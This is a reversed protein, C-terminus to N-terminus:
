TSRRFSLSFDVHLVWCYKTSKSLRIWTSIDVDFRHWLKWTSEDKLISTIEVFKGGPIEVDFRHRISSSTDMPFNRQLYWSEYIFGSLFSRLHQNKGFSVFKQFILVVFIQKNYIFNVDYKFSYKLILLNKECLVPSRWILEFLLFSRNFLKFFFYLFSLLLRESISWQNNSRPFGLFEGGFFERRFRVVCCFISVM